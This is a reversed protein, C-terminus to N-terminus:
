LEPRTTQSYQQFDKAAQQVNVEGEHLVVRFSMDLSEGSKLTHGPTKQGGVFHHVGFPNAAFLGYNRVHWRCPASFSSPHYHVTIGATDGNVPGSYDVWQSETGWADKDTQGDANTITGGPEADVKMTGAVRIGFSGEKTDGFHVDGDSAMLQFDCDIIRREGDSSFAFRRVDSLVRKGDPGIWDNQTVITATDTKPDVSVTGDRHQITGCNCDTGEAWFDVGNVEGHTLWLSRHHEHDKKEHPDAPKMPYDRTLHHGNPGVLPYVIPKSGSKKIYGAVLADGRFVQWGSQDASPEVRYKTGSDAATSQSWLTTPFLAALLIPLLTLFSRGSHQQSRTPRPM